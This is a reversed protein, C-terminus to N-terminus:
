HKDLEHNGLFPVERSFSNTVTVSVKQHYLANCQCNFFIFSAQKLKSNNKMIKGYGKSGTINVGHLYKQM